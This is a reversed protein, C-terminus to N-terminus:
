ANIDELFDNCQEAIKMKKRYTKETLEQGTAWWHRENCGSEFGAGPTIDSWDNEYSIFWHKCFICNRM